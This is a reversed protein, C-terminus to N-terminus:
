GSRRMILGLCTLYPVFRVEADVRPPAPVPVVPRGTLEQLRNAGDDSLVSEARVVIPSDMGFSASRYRQIFGVMPKLGDAISLTMDGDKNVKFTHWLRPVRQDILVVECPEGTLDLLLCSDVALARALCLSKLDVASPELGAERVAGAIAEILRRDWVTAFIVREEKDGSPLEVHRHAMRESGLDLQSKVAAEIDADTADRPFAMVRFSAVSDSAAILARSATIESRAILQRLAQGVAVQDLVRGGAMAGAPLGAEGCRMHSGPLGEVVRVTESSM